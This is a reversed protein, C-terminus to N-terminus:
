ITNQRRGHASFRGTIAAHDGQYSDWDSSTWGDAKGNECGISIDALLAIALGAAWRPATIASIIPKRADILGKVLNAASAFGDRLRAAPMQKRVRAWTTSAAAPVFLRAGAGTV